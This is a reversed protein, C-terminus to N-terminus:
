RGRVAASKWALVGGSPWEVVGNGSKTHGTSIEKFGGARGREGREASTERAL